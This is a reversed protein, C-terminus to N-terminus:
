PWPRRQLWQVDDRATRVVYAARRGVGVLREDDPLVFTRVLAGRRDVVDYAISRAAASPTRRVVVEGSSAAVLAQDLFPPLVRPWDPPMDAPTWGAGAAFRRAVAAAKQRDDVPVPTFPLPAGPRRRGDPAIWEVRYPDSRALAIWGDPFLVAQEEAALPNRLLWGVPPGGPEVPRRVSRLGRFAGRVRGVTDSRGTRVDVRLLLLSDARGREDLLADGEVSRLHTPKSVLLRGRWGAGHATPLSARQERGYDVAGTIRDGVVVLWRGLRGDGLLTTDRGFPHLQGVARYEGPGQGERGSPQVRRATWDVVYLRPEGADAVLLRGDELERVGTIRTFGHEITAAPAGLAGARAQAGCPLVPLLTSTVVVLLM